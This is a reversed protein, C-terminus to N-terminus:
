RSRRMMKIANRLFARYVNIGRTMVISVLEIAVLQSHGRFYFPVSCCLLIIIIVLMDIIDFEEVVEVLTDVLSEDRCFPCKYWGSQTIKDVCRNCIYHGCRPKMFITRGDVDQCVECNRSFRNDSM